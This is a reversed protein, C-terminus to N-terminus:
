GPAGPAPASETDGGADRVQGTEPDIRRRDRIVPGDHEERPSTM